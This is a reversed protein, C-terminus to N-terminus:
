LCSTKYAVNASAVCAHVPRGDHGGSPQLQQSMVTFLKDKKLIIKFTIPTLQRFQRSLGHPALQRGILLTRSCRDTWHWGSPPVWVNRLRRCTGSNSSRCICADQSRRMSADHKNRSASLIAGATVSVRRATWRLSLSSTRVMDHPPNNRITKKPGHDIAVVLATPFAFSCRSTSMNRKRVPKSESKHCSM